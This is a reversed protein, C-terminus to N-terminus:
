DAVDPTPVYIAGRERVPALLDDSYREEATAESIPRREQGPYGLAELVQPAIYYASTLAFVASEVHAGVRVELDALTCSEGEAAASGVAVVAAVLGPDADLVRDLWAEHAGVSRGSPLRTTGPLIMDVVAALGGRTRDDVVQTEEEITM